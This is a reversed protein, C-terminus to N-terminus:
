PLLYIRINMRVIDITVFINLYENTWFNSIQGVSIHPWVGQCSQSYKLTELPYPRIHSDNPYVTKKKCSHLLKKLKQKHIAFVASILVFGSINKVKFALIAGPLPSNRDELESPPRMLGWYWQQQVTETTTYYVILTDLTCAQVATPMNVTFGLLTQRGSNSQM